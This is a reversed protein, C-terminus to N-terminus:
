ILQGEARARESIYKKPVDTQHLHITTTPIFVGALQLKCRDPGQPLRKRRNAPPPQFSAEATAAEKSTLGKAPEANPENETFEWEM